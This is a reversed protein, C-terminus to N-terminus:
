GHTLVFHMKGEPSTAIDNMVTGRGVGSHIVNAWATQADPGAPRGLANEYISNVFQKATQGGHQAQSEDSQMLAAVFDHPTLGNTKILNSWFAQTAPDADHGLLGVYDERVMTRVPDRAIFGQTPGNPVADSYGVITGNDNVGTIWTDAAGTADIFSMTGNTDIFGHWHAAGDEYSGVIKGNNNIEMPDTVVAGPVVIKSFKGNVDKFGSNDATGVIVGQNNIGHAETASAGPARITSLNGDQWLFGVHPDQTGGLQVHTGVVQGQDNIGYAIDHIGSGHNPNNSIYQVSGDPSWIYGTEGTPDTGNLGVVQGANNVGNATSNSKNDPQSIPTFQGNVYTFAENYHNHSYDSGVALGDNNMGGLKTGDTRDPVVVTQFKYAVAVM